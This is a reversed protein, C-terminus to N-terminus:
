KVEIGDFERLIRKAYKLKQESESYITLVPTGMIVADGIHKHLYIGAGNDGPAGAVRAIKAITKNDISTIRGAEKSKVAFKFKGIKIGEPRIKPNGGQEKIIEKMKEYAKGSELITRAKQESNIIGAMRMMKAAIMLSKKKLDQPARRDDTLVYLVDRAELAPGIGNGIPQNGDSLIVKVKMGMKRGLKRFEKGLKKAEAKNKFKTSKGIPLDILVHTSNVAAKKAMISALLMGKPDLSLPRRIKIM